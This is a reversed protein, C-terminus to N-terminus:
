NLTVSPKTKSFGTDVQFMFHQQSQPTLEQLPTGERSLVVQLSSKGDSQPKQDVAFSDGM